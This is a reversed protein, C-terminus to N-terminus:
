GEGFYFCQCFTMLSSHELGEGHYETWGTGWDQYELWAREPEGHESLKGRIRLAPGGTTLLIEFEDAPQEQEGPSYWGSRVQVSLPSEQIRERVDDANEQLDGDLTAAETLERLEDGSDLKFADLATVADDYEGQLEVQDIRGAKREAELKGGLNDVDHVLSEHEDKLDTLRDYDCELAAVMSAISQAWGQANQRAHDIKEQPANM